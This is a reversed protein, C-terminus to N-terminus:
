EARGARCCSLLSQLASGKKTARGVPQSKNIQALSKSSHGGCAGAGFAKFYVRAIERERYLERLDAEAHQRALVAAQLERLAARTETLSEKTRQLELKLSDREGLDQFRANRAPFVRKELPRALSLSVATPRHRQIRVVPHRSLFNSIV